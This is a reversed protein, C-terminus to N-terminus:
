SSTSLAVWQQARSKDQKNRCGRVQPIAKISRTVNAVKLVREKAAPFRCPYIGSTRNRGLTVVASCVFGNGRNLDLIVLVPSNIEKGAEADARCREAADPRPRVADKPVGKAREQDEMM